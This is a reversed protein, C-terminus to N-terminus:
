KSSHMTRMVNQDCNMWPHTQTCFLLVINRIAASTVLLANRKIETENKHKLFSLFFSFWERFGQSLLEM